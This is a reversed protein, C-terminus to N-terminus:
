VPHEADGRQRGELGTAIWTGAPSLRVRWSPPLSPTPSPPKARHPFAARNRGTRGSENRFSLRAPCRRVSNGAGAPHYLGTTAGHAPLSRCRRRSGVKCAAASIRSDPAYYALAEVHKNVGRPPDFSTLIAPRSPLDVGGGLRNSRAPPPSLVDAMYRVFARAIPCSWIGDNRPCGYKHFECRDSRDLIPSRGHAHRLTGPNTSVLRCARYGCYPISSPFCLGMFQMRLSIM